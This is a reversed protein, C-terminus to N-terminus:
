VFGPCAGKSITKRGSNLSKAPALGPKTLRELGFETGESFQHKREAIFVGPIVSQVGDTGLECQANGPNLPKGLIRALAASAPKTAALVRNLVHSRGWHEFPTLKKWVYDFEVKLRSTPQSAAHIQNEGATVPHQQVDSVGVGDIFDDIQNTLHIERQCVALIEDRGMRVCIM